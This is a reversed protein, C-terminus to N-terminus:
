LGGGASVRGKKYSVHVYGYIALILLLVWPAPSNHFDLIQRWSNTQRSMPQEVSGGDWSVQPVGGQGAGLLFGPATISDVGGGISQNGGIIMAGPERISLSRSLYPNTPAQAALGGLGTAAEYGYM